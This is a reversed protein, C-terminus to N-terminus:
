VFAIEPELKIDKKIIINEVPQQVESHTKEKIVFMVERIGDLDIGYESLKWIKKDAYRPAFSKEFGEISMGVIELDSQKFLFSVNQDIYHTVLAEKGHASFFLFLTDLDSDYALEPRKNKGSERWVKTKFENINIERNMNIMKEWM